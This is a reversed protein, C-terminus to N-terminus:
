QAVEWTLSRARSWRLYKLLEDNVKAVDYAEPNFVGNYHPFGGYWQTVQEHDQHAPDLVAECFDFFGETGGVDEPPCARAGDLCEVPGQSQPHSYRSDEITIEHEWSDGFDYLYRISRGKQKALDVLRFRGDVEGDDKEEPNETYKKKGIVFEHLHCDQWGMVIQIVDHLRDLTISGPVVFRRWIKPEIDLLEITLLYLRDDM